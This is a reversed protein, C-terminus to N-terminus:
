YYITNGDEDVENILEIKPDRPTYSNQNAPNLHVYEDLNFVQDFAVSMDFYTIKRMRDWYRGQNHNHAASGVDTELDNFIDPNGYIGCKTAAYYINFIKNHMIDVNSPPSMGSLIYRMFLFCNDQYRLRTTILYLVELQEFTGSLRDYKMAWYNYLEQDEKNVM